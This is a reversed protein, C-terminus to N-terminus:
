NNLLTATAIRQSNTKYTGHVQEAVERLRVWRDPSHFIGLRADKEYGIPELELRNM